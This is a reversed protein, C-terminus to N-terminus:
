KHTKNNNHLKLIVGINKIKHIINKIKMKLYIKKMNSHSKKIEVKIEELSKTTDFIYVAKNLNHSILKQKDLVKLLNDLSIRGRSLVRNLIVEKDANSFVIFDCYQDLKTEFLLPIELVLTKFIYFKNMKILTNVKKIVHPHLINELIKINEAYNDFIIKSLKKKDLKNNVNCNPFYKFIENLIAKNKLLVNNIYNDSNFVRCGMKKYIALITTKGSGILGTLGIIM